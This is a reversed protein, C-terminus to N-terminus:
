GVSANRSAGLGTLSTGAEAITLWHIEGHASVAEVVAPYERATAKLYRLRPTWQPVDANLTTLVVVLLDKARSADISQLSQEIKEGDGAPDLILVGPTLSAKEPLPRTNAARDSDVFSLFARQYQGSNTQLSFRKRVEAQATRAIRTRTRPADILREIADVWAEVTDPVSLATEGDRVVGSYVAVDSCISAAGAASHEFWSMPTRDADFGDNSSPVLAIDLRMAKLAAAYGEYSQPADVVTVNPLAAGNHPLAGLCYLQVREGHRAQIEGLARMVASFDPARFAAATLGIRVAERSESVPRYFLDFDVHGPLVHVNPNLERFAPALHGATVVIARAHKAVYEINARARAGEAYQPHSVPLDHLSEDTEYVVPIGFGLIQALEDLTFKGPAMRHMFVLDASRMAAPDLPEGAKAWSLKWEAGLLAFPRTLHVYAQPHQSDESSVILATRVKPKEPQRQAQQSAVQSVVAAQNRAQVKRSAEQTSELFWPLHAAFVGMQGAVIPHIVDVTAAARLLGNRESAMASGNTGFMFRDPTEQLGGENMYIVPCGCMMAEVCVASLEYSYLVKGRQLKEALEPLSVPAAMSLLETGPPFRSFDIKELPYRYQFVFAKDRAKAPDPKFLNPDVVPLYLYDVEDKKKDGIFNESYYFILDEKGENLPQGTHRGITNLIYRVCVQAGLPNGSVIEPYVVIPVLGRQRHSNAHEATLVPTRLAPNVVPTGVIYAEQGRSNLEHCLTHLVVIGASTERYAPAYIYYPHQPPHQSASTSM